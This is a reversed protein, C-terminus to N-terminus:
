YYYVSIFTLAVLRSVPWYPGFLAYVIFTRANANYVHNAEYKSKKEKVKAPYELQQKRM